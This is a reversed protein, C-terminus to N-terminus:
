RFHYGLDRLPAPIATVIAGLTKPHHKLITIRGRLFDIERPYIWAPPESTGADFVVNYSWKGSLLGAYYERIARSPVHYETSYVAIFNPNRKLLEARTFLREDAEIEYAAVHEQMWLDDKFIRRFLPLRGYAYPMRWDIMAGSNDLELPPNSALVEIANVGPLKAWRPSEASSEMVVGPRAHKQLWAQAKLRPDHNFREGVYWSCICNYLLIPVLIAYCWRRATIARQLGAGAMLILFPIAPLVFRNELRPFSGILVYYSCFVSAAMAFCVAAPSRLDARALLWVLSAGLALALLLTGPWGVIAPIRGLFELYSNGTIAGNYHPTVKSNYTFDAAFKRFRFLAGPNGLCFGIPIMALGGLLRRDFFLRIPRDWDNSLLHAVVLSIGVALGNYKTAACLGVAGGALLYRSIQPASNIRWALFFALLMFFLLPSDCSLFHAFEILGASTAFLLAVLRAAAFGFAQRSILYALFIMALFLAVVLLRSGVLRAENLNLDKGKVAELVHELGAIPVLVLLHNLYTHLPPKEYSLPLFGRLERLAMQDRNWDEVRGWTIGNLSFVFALTLAAILIPDFGFRVKRAPREKFASDSPETPVLAFVHSSPLTHPHSIRYRRSEQVKLGSSVKSLSDRM